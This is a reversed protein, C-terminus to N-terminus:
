RSNRALYGIIPVFIASCCLAIMFRTAEGVGEIDLTALYIAFAVIIIEVFNTHKM